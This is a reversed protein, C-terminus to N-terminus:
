FPNSYRPSTLLNQDTLTNLFAQLETKEVNTLNLTKVTKSNKILFVADLSENLQVGHDYHDIVEALTSFRGDHMYPATVAINRLTPIRFLQNKISGAASLGNNSRGDGTSKIFPTSVSTSVNSIQNSPGYTGGVFDAAAFTPATHCHNCQAKGNFLSMGAKEQVNFNDFASSLGQDFKSNSSYIIQVFNAIAETVTAETIGAPGYAEKFLDPYYDTAKVKKVVDEVSRNGMEISNILPQSVLQLINQVRSDWFYNNQFALNQISMASVPTAEGSHGKSFALGDTFAKGQIHCSGCSVQGSSSLLNDYFLLRGLSAKENTITPNKQNIPLPILKTSDVMSKVLFSPLYDIYTYLDFHKKSPVKTGITSIGALDAQDKSCSIILVSIFFLVLWQNKM